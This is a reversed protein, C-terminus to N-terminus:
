VQPGDSGEWSEDYEPCPKESPPWLAWWEPPYEKTFYPLSYGAKVVGFGGVLAWARIADVFEQPVGSDFDDGFEIEMRFRVRTM